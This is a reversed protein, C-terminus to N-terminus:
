FAALASVAGPIASAASIGSAVTGLLNTTPNTFYPSQTVSTGGYNGSTLGAYQQLMQYPLTQYYNYRNVADNLEAQQQQQLLQQSAFAQQPGVYQSNILSPTNAMATEMTGLGTNYISGLSSAAQQQATGGQIAQSGLTGAAQQQLGAGGLQLQGAQNALNGQLQAGTLYQNSLAQAAQQEATAGSILQQGLTSAAGQQVGAGGLALNGAANAATSQLGAGSLIQNGLNAAAQAQAQGGSIAQSGLTSAAGQQLGAGQLYQGGLAQAGALQNQLQAQYNQYELPALASSVGQATAYAAEPSSLTGSNIFQSEIQPVVQAMVAQATPDTAPNAAAVNQGSAFYNLGATGPNAAGGLNTGSQAALTGTGLNGTGYNTNSLSNLPAFASNMAGGPNVAAINNLTGVQPNVVSPNTAQSYLTGAAPNSAGYNTSTLLDLANSAPNIAGGQNTGALNTLTQATSSAPAAGYAQSQLAAEGPNAGVGFNTNSLGQLQAEYPNHTLYHGSLLTNQFNGASQQLPDPALGMQTTQAIAQNQADTFPQVTSTPYYQPGNGALSSNYLNQAQSFVDTLYPQQGSWPASSQTTTATSQTPTKSM